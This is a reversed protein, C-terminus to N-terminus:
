TLKIESEVITVLSAISFTFGQVGTIDRAGKRVKFCGDAAESQLRINEYGTVKNYIDAIV